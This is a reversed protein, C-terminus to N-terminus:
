REPQAHEGPLLHVAEPPIFLEWQKDEALGLSRYAPVAIDVWLSLEPQVGAAVFRLRATFGLHREEVVEAHLRTGASLGVSLPRDKRILRIDEQRICAYLPGAPPAEGTTILEVGSGELLVRDAATPKAPFVNAFGVTRAVTTDLPRYFVDDRPGFQLIRGSDYVAIEDALEFAEEPDHTVFVWAFGLAAQLELLERRLAARVPTDLASFPEDLLLMLPETALARALAVRQQEGGSLARPRRAEFGELRVLRLLKGVKEQREAAPSRRLGYGVNAAVDLHPFLVSSQPVYGVRRQEPPVDLRRDSDFVTQGDVTVQGSDPALLGALCQLTVSKGSGSPGFLVIRKAQSQFSVDLQFRGLRKRLSFSLV